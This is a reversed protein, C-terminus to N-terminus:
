LCYARVHGKKLAWSNFVNLGINTAAFSAMAIVQKYLPVNKGGGGGGAM